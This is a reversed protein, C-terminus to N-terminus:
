KGGRRGPSAAPPLGRKSGAARGGAGTCWRSNQLPHTHKDSLHEPTPHKWPSGRGGEDGEGGGDREGGLGLASSEVPTM